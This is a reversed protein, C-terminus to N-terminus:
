IRDSAIEAMMDVPFNTNGDPIAPFVSTDVIHLNNIGKIKFNDPHVVRGLSCTGSYHDTSSVGMEIYKQLKEDNELANLPPYILQINEDKMQEISVKYLWKIGERISINDEENDFLNLNIIPNKSNKDYSVNGRSKPNLDWLLFTIYKGNPDNEGVSELLKKNVFESGVLVVQWDRTNSKEDFPVFAVPGSSFDFQLEKTVKLIMTSGYHNELENGIDVHNYGSKKLIYPTHIGGACLIVKGNKNLKTNKMIGNSDIWNVRKVSNQDDDFVIKEVMAHSKMFINNDIGGIGNSNRDLKIFNSPLYAINSSSRTGTVNDFFMQPIKSVCNPNKYNKPITNYDELIPISKSKSINYLLKEVYSGEMRLPGSNQFIELIQHLTRLGGFLGDSVIRKITPWIRNKLKIEFPLQSIQLPGDKGRFEINQSTGSYNEIRKVYKEFDLENMNLLNGWHDVYFQNSGHVALAINHSSCGGYMLSFSSIVNKNDTQLVESYPLEYGAKLANAINFVVKDNRRDVGRDLVLIKSNPYKENLRKALICGSTGAGLIL